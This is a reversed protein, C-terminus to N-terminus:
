YYDDTCNGDFWGTSFELWRNQRRYVCEFGIQNIDQRTNENFQEPRGDRESNGPPAELLLAAAGDNFQLGTSMGVYWLMPRVSKEVESEKQEEM